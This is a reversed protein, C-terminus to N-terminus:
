RVLAFAVGVVLLVVSISGWIIKSRRSMAPELIM